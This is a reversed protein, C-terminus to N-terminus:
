QTSNLSTSGLRKQLDHLCAPMRMIRAAGIMSQAADPSSISPQMSKPNPISSPVATVSVPAPLYPINSLLPLYRLLKVQAAHLFSQDVMRNASAAM